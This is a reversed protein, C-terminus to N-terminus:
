IINSIKEIHLPINSTEITYAIYVKQDLLSLFINLFSFVKIAIVYLIVHMNQKINRVKLKAPPQEM